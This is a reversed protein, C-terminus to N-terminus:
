SPAWFNKESEEPPAGDIVYRYLAWLQPLTVDRLADEDIETIYHKIVDILVENREGTNKAANFKPVVTPEIYDIQDRITSPKFMYEKGGFILKRMAFADADFTTSM